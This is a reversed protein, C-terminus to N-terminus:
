GKWKQLNKSIITLSFNSSLLLFIFKVFFFDFNVNDLLNFCIKFIFKRLLDIRQLFKEAFMQALILAEYMKRFKRQYAFCKAIAFLITVLTRVCSLFNMRSKRKVDKEKTYINMNIRLVLEKQCLYVTQNLVTLSEEQKGFQSYLLGLLFKCKVLSNLLDPNVSDEFFKSYEEIYYLYSYCLQYNGNNRYLIAFNLLIDFLNKVFFFTEAM